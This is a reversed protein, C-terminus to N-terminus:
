RKSGKDLANRNWTLQDHVAWWQDEKESTLDLVPNFYNLFAQTVETSKLLRNKLSADADSAGQKYANVVIQVFPEAKDEGILDRLDKLCSALIATVVDDDM